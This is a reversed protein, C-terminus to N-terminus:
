SQPEEASEGPGPAYITNQAICPHRAPAQEIQIDWERLYRIAIRGGTQGAGVALPSSPAVGVPEWVRQELDTADFLMVREARDCSECEQFWIRGHQCRVKAKM